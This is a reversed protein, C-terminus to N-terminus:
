KLLIRDEILLAEDHIDNWIKEVFDSSLWYEKAINKKSDLVEQWRGSQLAPMNNEKKYKGVKQVIDLRKALLVILQRDLSDIEERYIDLKTMIINNIYIIQIKVHKKM